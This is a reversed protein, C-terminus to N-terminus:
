LVCKICSIINLFNYKFLLLDANRRILDISEINSSDILDPPPPSSDPIDGVVDKEYTVLTTSIVVDDDDDATLDLQTPYDQQAKLESIQQVL